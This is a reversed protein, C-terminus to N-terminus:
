KTNYIACIIDVSKKRFQSCNLSKIFFVQMQFIKGIYYYTIPYITTWWNPFLNLNVNDIKIGCFISPIATLLILTFILKTKKKKTDLARYLINLYPILLFLGIYMEIYWAYGNATPDFFLRIWELIRNDVGFYYKKIIVYVVAFFIYSIIIKKLGKYYDKNPEKEKNLYGTAILFLPICTHFLHKCASLVIMGKGSYSMQYFNTNLLFHLAIVFFAALAKIIDLGAIRKM